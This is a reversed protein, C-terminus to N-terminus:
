GRKIRLLLNLVTKEKLIILMFVYILLGGVVDILLSLFNNISCFSMVYLFASLMVTSISIKVISINNKNLKFYKRGMNVYVFMVVIESILSAIAAGIEAYLNILFLNLIVNIVSGIVVAIVMKSEKGVVLCVRSGLLYGIPSIFIILSLVRLINASTLYNDGYLFLIAKDAEFFIEIIIPFSFLIIYNLVKSLISNFEDINNRNFSESLRPVIVITLTNIIQLFVKYIKTAYSYYAVSENGCMIGLMTTDILTYVEIAFNVVVLLMISKLHKKFELGRLTFRVVKRGYFVNILFSGGTGFVLIFVYAILDESGRVFFILLCFSIVKIVINRISIFKFDEVGEFLWTFDIINLPILLGAILYIRYKAFFLPVSFVIILYILSFFVTSIFNIIFLESFLKNLQEKNNKCRSAERLGYTPIGLFSFIVFYTVINQAYSVQGIDSPLLVRAVYIGSIFPFVMNLVNYLLMYSSNKMLSNNIM